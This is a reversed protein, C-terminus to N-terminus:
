ALEYRLTRDGWWPVAVPALNASRLVPSHVRRDIRVTIVQGHNLIQGSVSLFHRQLTDPTATHYGARTTSSATASRAATNPTNAAV